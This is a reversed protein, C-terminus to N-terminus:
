SGCYTVNVELSKSEEAAEEEKVGEEPTLKAQIAGMIAAEKDETNPFGAGDKKSHLVVGDLSVEFYGNTEEPAM